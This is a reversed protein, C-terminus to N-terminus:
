SLLISGVGCRPPMEWDKVHRSVRSVFDDTSTCYMCKNFDVTEYSIKFFLCLKKLLTFQMCRLNKNISNVTSNQVKLLRNSSRIETAPCSNPTRVTKDGAYQSICPLRTPFVRSFHLILEKQLPSNALFLNSIASFLCPQLFTCSVSM